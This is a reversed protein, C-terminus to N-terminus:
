LKKYKLVYENCTIIRHPFLDNIAINKSRRWNLSESLRWWTKIEFNKGSPSVLQTSGNSRLPFLKTPIYHPFWCNPVVIHEWHYSLSHLNLSNMFGFISSPTSTELFVDCHISPPLSAIIRLLFENQKSMSVKNKAISKSWVYFNWSWSPKSLM